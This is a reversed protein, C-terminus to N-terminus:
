NHETRRISIIFRSISASQFFTFSSFGIACIHYVVEPLKGDWFGNQHLGLSAPEAAQYTFWAAFLKLAEPITSALMYLGLLAFLIFSIDEFRIGNIEEESDVKIKSFLWHSIQSSKRILAIGFIFPIVFQPLLAFTSYAAIELGNNQFPALIIIMVSMGSVVIASFISYFGILSITLTSLNQLKM